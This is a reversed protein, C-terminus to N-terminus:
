SPRIEDLLTLADRQFHTLALALASFLAMRWHEVQWTKRPAPLLHEFQNFQRAIVSAIEWRTRAGLHVFCGQVDKRAYIAVEVSYVTALAVMAQGLRAIRTRRASTEVDFTELVLNQPTLRKLLKEIRRLCKENKHAGRADVTGWDYPSFPGEFAAWGFGRSSPHIALTLSRYRPRKM